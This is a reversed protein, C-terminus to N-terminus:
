SKEWFYKKKVHYNPKLMISEGFSKINSINISFNKRFSSGVLIEKLDNSHEKRVVDKVRGVNRGHSDLVKKGKLLVFPDVKLIFSEHSLRRIYSVGIYIPKKFIGRSIIIGELFMKTPHIRIQSVKGIVQGSKSIVRINLSDKLNLTDELANERKTIRHHDKM